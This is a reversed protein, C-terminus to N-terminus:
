RGVVLQTPKPLVYVTTDDLKVAKLEPHAALYARVQPPMPFRHDQQIVIARFPGAAPDTELNNGLYPSDTSPSAQVILVRDSGTVGASQLVPEVRAIGYPRLTVVERLQVVVTVAALALLVTALGVAVGRWHRRRLQYLKVVGIGALPIASWAIDEYYYPLADHAILAFFGVSCLTAAFLFWSLLQHGPVVLAAAIGALVVITALAGLGHAGFWLVGWWPAHLYTKGAIVTAHGTANASSQFKLMYTIARVPGAPLYSLWGTVVAVAGWVLAPVAARYSRWRPTWIVVAFAPLIALAPAKSTIALGFAVGSLVLWVWRETRHWQWITASAAVLFAAMIPDLMAMREIRDYPNGDPDFVPLLLAFGAPVIALLSGFERRMWLWIVVAAAFSMTATVLRSVTVSLHGVALEAVGILYKGTLPHELNATFTGHLYQWGATAYTVEDGAINGASLHAFEIVAGAAFVLVLISAVVLSRRRRRARQRPPADADRDVQAASTM